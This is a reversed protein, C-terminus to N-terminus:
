APCTTHTAPELRWAAAKEGLHEVIERRSRPTGDANVNWPNITNIFTTSRRVKKGCNACPVNKSVPYRVEEFVYRSM